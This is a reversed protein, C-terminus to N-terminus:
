CYYFGDKVEAYFKLTIWETLSTNWIISTLKWSENTESNRSKKIGCLTAWKTNEAQTKAELIELDDLELDSNQSGIEEM